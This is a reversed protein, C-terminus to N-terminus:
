PSRPTRPSTQDSPRAFKADGVPINDRAEEIQITFRSGPRAIARQFAMKVAGLPRYDAYDIQTPNRGLPTDVYRVMRLLLGSREDFYFKAAPEGATFGSVVYVDHDGIKEPRGSRLDSLLQILRVPLQLDTELRASAVEPTPVDRVSRNQAYTWGFTTDYATISDGDPLHIITIRRGPDKSFIEIPLRKGGFRITGKEVRTSLKGIASVGGLSDAYSALIKEPSPVGPPVPGEEEDDLLGEPLALSEAAPVIPMTLPHSSGRHCTYCTVERKGQFNVHNITFMMQMMKRGTQKQKKDDKEFGGEMHCYSCEVGLSYTIFQMAPILQDAPVGKLTQINKYVEETTKGTVTTRGNPDNQVQQPVGLLSLTVLGLGAVAWALIQKNMFSEKSDRFSLRGM